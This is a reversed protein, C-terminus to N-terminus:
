SPRLLTTLCSLARERRPNVCRIRRAVHPADSRALWQGLDDLKRDDSSVLLLPAAHATHIRALEEQVDAPVRGAAAVPQLALIAPLLTSLPM